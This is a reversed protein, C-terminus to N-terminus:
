IIFSAAVGILTGELSVVGNEGRKGASFDIVNVYRKGYITGLESSLTDATASSIAATMMLFLSHENGTGLWSCCALVAALGGNALVQGANRKGGHAEAAGILAKNRIGLQTAFVALIFFTGILWIGTFGTGAYICLGVFAAAICGGLTLKNKAGAVLLFVALVVLFLAFSTM